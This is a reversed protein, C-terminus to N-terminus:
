WYMMDTGDTALKAQDDTDQQEDDDDRGDEDTALYARAAARGLVAQILAMKEAPQAALM